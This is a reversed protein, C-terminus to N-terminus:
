CDEGVVSFLNQIKVHALITHSWEVQQYCSDLAGVLNIGTEDPQAMFKSGERHM